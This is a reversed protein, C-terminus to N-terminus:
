GIFLYGHEFAQKQADIEQEMLFNDLAPLNGDSEIASLYEEATDFLKMIFYEKENNSTGAAITTPDIILNSETDLVFCHRCYVSSVSKVYGYAVKWEGDNFKSLFHSVVYFVNNYCFKPEILKKLKEYVTKSTEFDIKYFVMDGMLNVDGEM